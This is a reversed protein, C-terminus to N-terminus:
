RSVLLPPVVQVLLYAGLLTPINLGEIYVFAGCFLALVVCLKAIEAGYFRMVLMGPEQARYRRFVWFAFVANALTAAGAGILASLGVFQSYLAGLAAVGLTLAFQIWLVRKVQLADPQQM